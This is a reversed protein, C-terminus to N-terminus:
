KRHFRLQRVYSDNRRFIVSRKQLRISNTMKNIKYQGVHFNTEDSFFTRGLKERTLRRLLRKGRKVRLTKERENLKKAFTRGYTKMELDDHIIRRVSSRSIGTQFEIQRPTRHTGEDGEDEQSAALAEVVAINQPVRASKFRGSGKKREISGTLDIKALLKNLGGKTWTRDPFEWLLRGARYGKELRYHKILIKDEESFAMDNRRLVCLVSSRFVFFRFSKITKMTLIIDILLAITLINIGTLCRM